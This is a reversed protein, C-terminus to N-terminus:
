LPSPGHPVRLHLLPNGAGWSAHLLNLFGSSVSLVNEKKKLLFM